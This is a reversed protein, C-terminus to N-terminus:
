ELTDRQGLSLSFDCSDGYPQYTLEYLKACIPFTLLM